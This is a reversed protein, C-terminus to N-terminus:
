LHAKAAPGEFLFAELRPSRRGAGPVTRPPERSLAPHEAPRHLYRHRLPRRQPASQSHGLADDGGSFRHLCRVRLGVPAIRWLSRPVPPRSLGAVRLCLSYAWGSRCASRGSCGAPGAQGPDLCARARRAGVAGFVLGPGRLDAAVVHHIARVHQLAVDTGHRLALGCFALRDALRVPASGSFFFCFFPLFVFFFFLLQNFASILFDPQYRWFKGDLSWFVKPSAPVAYQFPLVKMLAALVLPYLPPNALDPHRGKIRSPDAPKSPDAPNQNQRNHKKVLYISFPRVFLTTFGKGQAVNRGLQAADMAEQTSMNRFSRFNYFGTVGLVVLTVLGIKVFRMGGGVEVKHILEQLFPM